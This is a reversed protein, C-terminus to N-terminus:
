EGLVIRVDVWLFYMLVQIIMIRAKRAEKELTGFSDMRGNMIVKPIIGRTKKSHYKTVQKESGSVFFLSWNLIMEVKSPM